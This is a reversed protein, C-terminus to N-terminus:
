TKDTAMGDEPSVQHQLSFMEYMNDQTAELVTQLPACGFFM